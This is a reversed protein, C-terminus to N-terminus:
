ATIAALVLHKGVKTPLRQNFMRRVRNRLKLRQRTYSYTWRLTRLDTLTQDVAEDDSHVFFGLKAETM